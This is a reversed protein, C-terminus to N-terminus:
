CIMLVGLVDKMGSLLSCGPLDEIRYFTGVCSVSKHLTFVSHLMGSPMFLSQGAQQILLKANIATFLEAMKKHYVSNQM